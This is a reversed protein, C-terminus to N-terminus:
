KFFKHIQGTFIRSLFARLSLHKAIFVARGVYASLSASSRPQSFLTVFPKEPHSLVAAHRRKERRARNRGFSAFTNRYTAPLFSTYQKAKKKKQCLYKLLASTIWPPLRIRLFDLFDATCFSTSDCNRLANRHFHLQRLNDNTSSLETIGRHM